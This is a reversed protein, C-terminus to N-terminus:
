RGRMTDEELETPEPTGADAIGPVLASGELSSTAASPPLPSTVVLYPHAPFSKPDTVRAPITGEPGLVVEIDPSSLDGTIPREVIEKRCPKATPTKEMLAADVLSDAASTTASVVPGSLQIPQARLSHADQQKSGNYLLM